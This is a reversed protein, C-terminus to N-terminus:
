PVVLVSEALKKESGDTTERYVVRLRGGSLDLGKPHRLPLSISRRPNPTYVAIGKVIGVEVEGKGPADWFAVIDGYTSRRGEREINLSLTNKAPNASRLVKLDSLKATAELAGHRVIVPISLGYIPTLSVGLGKGAEASQAHVAEKAEPIVSFQLHSRYEGEALEPPKRLQMRVTQTQHPELIVRRPTVRLFADAFHDDAGPNDIVKLEGSESMRRNVFTLSYALQRNSRNMLMVEATNTRGEFIIRTPLVALDGLSSQSVASAEQKTANPIASASSETAPAPADAEAATLQICPALLAVMLLIAQSFRKRIMNRTLPYQQLIM